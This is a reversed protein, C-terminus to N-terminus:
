MAVGEYWLQCEALWGLPQNDLNVDLCVILPSSATIRDLCIRHQSTHIEEPTLKVNVDQPEIRIGDAVIFKMQLSIPRHELNEAILELNTTDGPQMFIRYPVLRVWDARCRRDPQDPVLDNLTQALRQASLQYDQLDTQGPLYHMQFQVGRWDFHERDAFTKTVHLPTPMTCPMNFRQPDRLIPELRDLCWLETGYKKQLYPIGIVHDDHYHSITIADIKKIHYQTILEDILKPLFRSDYQCFHVASAYGTTPYGVDILFAHGDDALLAYWSGGDAACVLLRDSIRIFLEDPLPTIEYYMQSCLRRLREILEATAKDPEEIIQGHGPCLLDVNQELLHEMSLILMEAGMADTYQYQLNHIQTARGPAEIMDGVFAISQRDFRGVLAVSGPTHGPAPLIELELDAWIFKDFDSLGMDVPANRPLSFFDAIQNYNFNVKRRRWFSEVDEILHREAQPVALRTKARDLRYIGACQDRHTHTLLVWELQEVGIEPLHDLWRGSGMDIAIARKGRVILYVNCSDQIRYLGQAIKAFIHDMVAFIYRFVPFNLQLAHEALFKCSL